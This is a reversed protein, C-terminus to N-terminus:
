RVLVTECRIVQHLRALCLERFAEAFVLAILTRSGSAVATTDDVGPVTKMGRITQTTRQVGEYVPSLGESKEPSM